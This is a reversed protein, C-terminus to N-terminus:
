DALRELIRQLYKKKFYYEKVKLLNETTIAADNYNEIIDKVGAYINKEFSNIHETSNVSLNENLEM